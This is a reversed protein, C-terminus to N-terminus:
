PIISLYDFQKETPRVKLQWALIALEEEERDRIHISFSGALKAIYKHGQRPASDFRRGSRPQLVSSYSTYM